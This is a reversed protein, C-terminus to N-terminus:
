FIEVLQKSVIIYFHDCKEPESPKFYPEAKLFHASRLGSWRNRALLIREANNFNVLQDKAMKQDFFESLREGLQQPSSFNLPKILGGSRKVVRAEKERTEQSEFFRAHEIALLAGTKTEKVLYDPQPSQRDEVDPRRELNYSTHRHLALCDLLYKMDFEVLEDESSNMPQEGQELCDLVRM